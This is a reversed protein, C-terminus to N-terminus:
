AKGIITHNYQTRALEEEYMQQEKMANLIIASLENHKHTVEDLHKVIARIDKKNQAVHRHLSYLQIVIITTSVLLFALILHELSIMM